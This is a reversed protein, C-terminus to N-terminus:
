APHDLAYQERRSMLKTWIAAPVLSKVAEYVGRVTEPEKILYPVVFRQGDAVIQVSELSSGVPDDDVEAWTQRLLGKEVIMAHLGRLAEAEVEFTETWVPPDHMPYDPRFVIRGEGGRSVHIEYEYHHPPPLSGERWEYRLSFDSPMPQM